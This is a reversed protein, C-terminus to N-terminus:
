VNGGVMGGPKRAIATLLENTKERQTSAQDGQKKIDDLKKPTEADPREFYDQIAARLEDSIPVHSASPRLYGRLDTEEMGLLDSLGFAKDALFARFDSGRSELGTRVEERLSDHLLELESRRESMQFARAGVAQTRLKAARLRAYSDVFKIQTGVLDRAPAAEIEASLARQRERHAQLSRLAKVGEKRGIIDYLSTDPDALEEAAKAEAAALRKEAKDRARRASRRAEFGESKLYRRRADGLAERAEDVKEQTEPTVGPTGALKADFFDLLEDNTEGRFDAKDAAQYLADLQTGAVDSDKAESEVVALAALQESHRLGIARGAQGFKLSAQMFQTADSETAQGGIIVKNWVARLDGAVEEGGFMRQHKRLGQALAMLNRPSVHRQRALEELFKRDSDSYEASQLASVYDFADAEQDPTFVGQRVLNRSEALGARYQEGTKYLQAMEGGSGLAGATREAAAQGDAEMQQLGERVLAIAGTVSAFGAVFQTLRNPDFAALFGERTEKTAVTLDKQEQLADRAAQKRQQLLKTNADVSRAYELKLQTEARQVIETERAHGALARRTEDIKRNYRERATETERIVRQEVRALQQVERALTKYNRESKKTRADIQDHAKGVGDAGRTTFVIEPM